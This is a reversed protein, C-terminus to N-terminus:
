DDERKDKIKKILKEVDFGVTELQEMLEKLENPTIDHPYIDKNIEITYQDDKFNTDITKINSSDTRGLLYDLTVDFYDAIKVLMDDKPFRKGKEWNTVTAPEVNMEKAFEKSLLQKNERLYKLRDGFKSM